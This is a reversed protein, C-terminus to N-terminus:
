GFHLNILVQVLLLVSEKAEDWPMSEHNSWSNSAYYQPVESDSMKRQRLGVKPM